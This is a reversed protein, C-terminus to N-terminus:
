VGAVTPIIERGVVDHEVDLPTIEHVNAMNFTVQSDALLAEHEPDIQDGAAV